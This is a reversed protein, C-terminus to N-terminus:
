KMVEITLRVSLASVVSYTVVGDQSVIAWLTNQGTRKTYYVDVANDLAIATGNNATYTTLPVIAVLGDFDKEELALAANAAHTVPEQSFVWVKLPANQEDIDIVSVGRLIGGDGTFVMKSAPSYADNASYASADGVLVMKQSQIM